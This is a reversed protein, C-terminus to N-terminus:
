VLVTLEAKSTYKARFRSILFVKLSDYVFLYVLLLAVKM